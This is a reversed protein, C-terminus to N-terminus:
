VKTELEDEKREAAGSVAAEVGRAAREKRIEKWLEQQM